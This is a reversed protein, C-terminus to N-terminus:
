SGAAGEDGIGPVALYRGGSGTAIRARGISTAQGETPAPGRTAAQDHATPDYFM